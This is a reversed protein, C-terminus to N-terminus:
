TEGCDGCQRKNQEPGVLSGALKWELLSCGLVFRRLMNLVNCRLETM